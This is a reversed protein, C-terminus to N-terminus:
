NIVLDYSAKSLRECGTRTVLVTESLSMTLGRADDMLFMDLFITMGPAVVGRHGSHLMPWDIWSPPFSAGLGYGCANLRYAGFGASDMVKAYIDFVAGFETGPVLMEECALLAERCAQHMSRQVNSATGTLITRMLAAHYHRFSGAFELTLQDEAGLHRRGSYYRCLLANRGSGIIFEMAPHDGDNKFYLSQMAALIDGEFADAVALRNAEDLAADALAAAKRVYAIEAPSKVARQQTVLDSADVLHCFGALSESLRQHWLGTLGWADLEIGLAEGRCGTEMLLDKLDELPDADDRDKWIRIDGIVSTNRAQMLDPLRTLLILRGDAGLFLCQFFVFGATDYGTLYYMSEQRFMLLGALNRRQLEAVGRHQRCAFEEEAFHLAM